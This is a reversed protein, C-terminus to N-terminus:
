QQEEPSEFIDLQDGETLTFVAKKYSSVRGKIVGARTNRSKKKGHAIMTNVGLVTVDPFLRSFAKVLELKNASKDVIFTYQNLKGSLQDAKESIVPKIIIDKM